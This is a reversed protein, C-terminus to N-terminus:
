TAAGTAKRKNLASRLLVLVIGIFGGGVLALALILSRRINSKFEIAGVDYRAAVFDGQVIPTENFAVIARDILQNQEIARAQAELEILEGIYAEKQERSQILKIEKEIAEYGRLYFPQNETLNAVVSAGAQFTQTEITNKAIGLSRAIEAQEQLYAVRNRVNKDYDELLNGLKFEIDELQFEADRERVKVLRTFQEQLTQRVNDQSNRLAQNLIFRITDQDEGSKFDVVWTTRPDRNRTDEPDTPPLIQYQYAEAVLRIEYELESEDPQRKVAGYERIAEVLTERTILDETFLGLLRSRDVNFFELANLTEYASAQGVTIPRVEFRGSLTQPALFAFLGGALMTLATVLAILWRGEWVTSVLQALDIEDDQYQPADTM